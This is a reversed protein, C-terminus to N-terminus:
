IHCDVITIWDDDDAGDIVLANYNQKFLGEEEPTASTYCWWGMTGSEHWKGDKTIVAYTSFSSELAAFNEKTKYKELYYEPTYLAWTIIEKEKETAPEQGEIKLEWFRIKKQYVEDNKLIIDKIRACDVLVINPDNSVYCTNKDDMLLSPSGKLNIIASVSNSPVRLTGAWRGGAEYWDWKANPNYWYGYARKKKDFPYGHYKKAYEKIDTYIKKVSVDIKEAGPVLSYDCIKFIPPDSYTRTCLGGNKSAENYEVESCERYFIENNTDVLKGDPLRVRALTDTEWGSEVEDTCNNFEMYKQPCDGMNNEQYPALMKDLIDESPEGKTIVGVTFHSM